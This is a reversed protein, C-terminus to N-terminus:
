SFYQTYQKLMDKSINFRVYTEFRVVIYLINLFPDSPFSAYQRQM